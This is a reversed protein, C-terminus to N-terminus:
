EPQCNTEMTSELIAGLGQWARDSILSLLIESKKLEPYKKFLLVRDTDWMDEITPVSANIYGRWVRRNRPTYICGHLHIRGIYKVIGPTVEFEAPTITVLPNKYKVGSPFLAYKGAPLSVAFVRGIVDELGPDPGPYGPTMSHEYWFANTMKSASEFWGSVSGDKKGYPVQGISWYHKATVGTISGVIIGIDRGGPLPKEPDITRMLETSCGTSLAILLVALKSYINRLM